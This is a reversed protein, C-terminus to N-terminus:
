CGAFLTRESLKICWDSDEESYVISVGDAKADALLQRIRADYSERKLEAIRREILRPLYELEDRTLTSGIANQVDIFDM